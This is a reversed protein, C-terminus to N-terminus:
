DPPLYLYSPDFRGLRHLTERDMVKMWGNSLRVCGAERLERLVRNVHVASLGCAEGIDTQTLLLPYGDAGEVVGAIRLRTELESLLNAVNGLARLAGTRYAWHRHIAADVLTLAWLERALTPHDDIAQRLAAHPFVAVRVGSLATVNHDLRKLPFAHLDAFDGPVEVAVLHQSDDDPDPIHRGIMGDLLLLSEELRKEMSSIVDGRRYTRLGSCIRLIVDWHPDSLHRVMGMRQINQLAKTM